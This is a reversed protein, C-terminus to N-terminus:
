RSVPSATFAPRPQAARKERSVEVTAHVERGFLIGSRPQSYRGCAHGSEARDRRWPALADVAFGSEGTSISRPVRADQVASSRARRPELGVRSTDHLVRAAATHHLSQLFRSKGIGELAGTLVHAERDGVTAVQAAM